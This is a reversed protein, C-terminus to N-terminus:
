AGFAIAQLRHRKKALPNLVFDQKYEPNHGKLKFALAAQSNSPWGVIQAFSIRM